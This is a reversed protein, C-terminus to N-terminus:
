EDSRPEYRYDRCIRKPFSPRDWKCWPTEVGQRHECSGMCTQGQELAEQYAAERLVEEKTV